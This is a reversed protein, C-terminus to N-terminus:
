PPTKWENRVLRGHDRGDILTGPTFRPNDAEIERRLAQRVFGTFLAARGPVVRGDDDTRALLLKLYFPTRFLDLQPTGEIGQWLAPGREPDYVTLFEEVRPDELPEIRVQPVPTEPTSLIASYDLSRCSFVVRLGPAWQPLDALFERWIGIRARYDEPGAHPIENVADLLLLGPGRRLLEALGPLRPHRGTWERELWDLPPPPEEGTRAPRWRSLPLLFSLPAGNGRLAGVALDLELRRLLTSKGCGPPGLLVLATDGTEALVDRLDDFSRPQAQWRIGQADPGQDLLLTMRTFRKDLAYRPASWEAVRALRYDTLTAPPAALIAKRAADDLEPVAGTDLLRARFDALPGPTANDGDASNGESEHRGGEAVTWRKLTRAVEVLVRAQEGADMEILTKKPSAATQLSALEFEQPGAKPDPYRFRAEEFLCPEILVPLIRLGVDKARRLLVPLENNRIYESALFAPSM